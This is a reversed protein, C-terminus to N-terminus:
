EAVYVQMTCWKAGDCEGQVVESSLSCKINENYFLVRAKRDIKM